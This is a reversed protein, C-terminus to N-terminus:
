KVDSYFPSQSISAADAEAMHTAPNDARNEAAHEIKVVHAIQPLRLLSKTVDRVVREHDSALLVVVSKAGRGRVVQEFFM